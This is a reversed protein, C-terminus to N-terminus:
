EPQASRGLAQPRSPRGGYLQVGLWESSARIRRLLLPSTAWGAKTPKPTLTGPGHLAHMDLCTYVPLPHFHASFQAGTGLTNGKTSLEDHTGVAVRNYEATQHLEEVGLREEIVDVVVAEDESM